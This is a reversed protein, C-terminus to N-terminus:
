VGFTYTVSANYIVADALYPDETASFDLGWNGFIFGIGGSNVNFQSAQTFRRQGFRFALSGAMSFPAMLRLESGIRIEEGGYLLPMISASTDDANLWEASGSLDWSLLSNLHILHATLGARYSEPRLILGNRNQDPKVESSYAAGSNVSLVLAQNTLDLQHQFGLKGSVTYGIGAYSESDQNPKASLLHLVTGVGYTLSEGEDLQNGWALSLSMQSTKVPANGERAALTDAGGTSSYFGGLVFSNYTSFGGIMNILEGQVPSEKDYHSFNMALERVKDKGAHSLLNAPNISIAFSDTAASVLAGGQAAYRAGTTQIDSAHAFHTLLTATAIFAHKKM